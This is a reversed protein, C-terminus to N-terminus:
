QTNGPLDIQGGSNEGTLWCGPQDKEKKGKHYLLNSIQAM